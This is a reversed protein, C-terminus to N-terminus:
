AIVFWNGFGDPWFRASVYAAASMPYTAAGNILEGAAAVVTIMNTSGAVEQVTIASGQWPFTGTTPATFTSIPLTVNMPAATPNVRCVEGFFAAGNALLIAANPIMRQTSCTWTIGDGKTPATPPAIAGAFNPMIWQFQANRSSGWVESFYTDIKLTSGALGKFTNNQVSTTRKGFLVLTAGVAIEIVPAPSAATPAFPNLGFVANNQVDFFSTAVDSLWMPQASADTNFMRFRVGEFVIGYFAGANPAITSRSTVFPHNGVTKGNYILGTIMSDYRKLNDIRCPRGPGGDYIQILSSDLGPAMGRDTWIVDTMDYAEGVPPPPIACPWLGLQTTPVNTNYAAFASIQPDTAPNPAFRNDFQLYRYGRNKTAKLMAYLPAFLTYVKGGPAYAGTAGPRYIFDALSDPSDATSNPDDVITWTLFGATTMAGLQPEIAALQELTISLAPITGGAPVTISLSSYGTPDQIAIESANLNVISLLPM